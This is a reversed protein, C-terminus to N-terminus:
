FIKENKDKKSIPNIQMNFNFRRIMQSSKLFIYNFGIFKDHNVIKALDYM